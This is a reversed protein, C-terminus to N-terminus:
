DFPYNLCEEIEKPIAANELSILEVVQNQVTGNAETIIHIYTILDDASFDLSFFRTRQEYAVFAPWATEGLGVHATYFIDASIKIPSIANSNIVIHKSALGAIEKPMQSTDFSFTGLLPRVQNVQALQNSIDIKLLKKNTKDVLFNSDHQPFYILAKGMVLSVLAKKNAYQIQEFAQGNVSVNTKLMINKDNM